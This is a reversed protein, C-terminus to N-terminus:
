RASFFFFFCLLSPKFYEKRKTQKNTQKNQAGTCTQKISWHMTSCSYIKRNLIITEGKVELTFAWHIKLSKTLDTTV